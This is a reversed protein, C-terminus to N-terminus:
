DSGRCTGKSRPWRHALSDDFVYGESSWPILASGPFGQFGQRLAGTMEKIAFGREFLRLCARNRDPEESDYYQECGASQIDKHLAADFNRLRSIDQLLYEKSGRRGYHHIYARLGQSANYYVPACVPETQLEPLRGICKTLKASHKVAHVELGKLYPVHAFCKGRVGQPWRHVLSRLIDSEKLEIHGSTGFEFRPLCVAGVDASPNEQLLFGAIDQGRPLYIYEDPDIYTVWQPCSSDLDCRKPWDDLMVQQSPFGRKWFARSANRKVREAEAQAAFPIHRVRQGYESAVRSMASSNGDEYLWVRSFRLALLFDIWQGLGSVSNTITIVDVVLAPKNKCSASSRLKERAKRAEKLQADFLKSGFRFVYEDLANFHLFAKAVGEPLGKVRTDVIRDKNAICNYRMWPLFFSLVEMTESCRDIM